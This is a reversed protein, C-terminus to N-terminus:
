LGALAAKLTSCFWRQATSDGGHEQWYLSVEIEPVNFPLEVVRTCSNSAFLQATRSPLTVLLDSNSVVGPLVSFHPVRLSIKRELGAEHLRDEVFHHGTAASVVVHKEGMYQELTLHEGIRPHDERVLCVYHENFILDSQAQVPIYSRNCIAADIKGTNLWEDLRAVEVQIVELEVQPAVKQMLKLIYPLLYIEGLDSLALRFCRTSQLPDFQSTHAIAREIESLSFRFVTYLQTALFTPQMGDRNRKFLTDGLLQRLRSLAYSVSPQTIHLREAAGSVSRTEFITVFVRILNLDVM